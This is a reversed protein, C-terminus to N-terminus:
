EHGVEALPADDGLHPRELGPLGDASNRERTSREGMQKAIAEIDSVHRKLTLDELALLRGNDIAVQELGDLGLQAFLHVTVFGCPHLGLGQQDATDEIVAAIAHARAVGALAYGPVRMLTSGTYLTARLPARTSSILHLSLVTISPINPISTQLFVSSTLM